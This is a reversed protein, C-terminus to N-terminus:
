CNCGCSNDCISKAKKYKDLIDQYYGSNFSGDTTYALEVTSLASQLLLFTKQAKALSSACKPCDCACDILENTLKALCCDIDCHILLPRRAVEVGGEYLGVEFVGNPATLNEVAINLQATLPSGSYTITQTYIQGDSLNKFQIDATGAGTYSHATVGLITCSNHVQINFAM